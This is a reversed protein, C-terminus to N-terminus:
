ITNRNNHILTLLAPIDEEIFERCRVTFKGRDDRTEAKLNLGKSQVSFQMHAIIKAYTFYDSCEKQFITSLKFLLTNVLENATYINHHVDYSRGQPFKIVLFEQGFTDSIIEVSGQSTSKSTNIPDRATSM